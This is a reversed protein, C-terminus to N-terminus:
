AQTWAHPCYLCVIPVCPMRSNFDRIRGYAPVGAPFVCQPRVLAGRKTANNARRVKEGQHGVEEEQNGLGWAPRAVVGVQLRTYLSQWNRAVVFRMQARLVDESACRTM